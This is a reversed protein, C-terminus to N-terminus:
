RADFIMERLWHSLLNDYSQRSEANSLAHDAGAIVRYTVSRATVFSTLYSAVTPHPVIEDKESEAILVDGDFDRCQRLALNREYPVLSRRYLALARRFFRRAIAKAVAETIRGCMRAM